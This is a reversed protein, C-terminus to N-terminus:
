QSDEVKLTAAPLSATKLTTSIKERVSPDLDKLHAAFEPNKLVSDLPMPQSVDGMPQQLEFSKMAGDAAPKRLTVALVQRNGQRQPQFRFQVTRLTQRDDSIRNMQRLVSRQVPEPLSKLNAAIEASTGSLSETVGDPTEGALRVEVQFHRGDRTQVGVSYAPLPVDAPATGAPKGRGAVPDGDSREITGNPSGSHRHILRSVTREAPQVDLLMAKAGRVVELKVPKDSPQSTVHEKLLDPSTLPKADAASLVDFPQVGAKAAPSNPLVRKVLLGRGPALVGKLQVALAQPVPETVVGLYREKKISTTEAAEEGAAACAALCILGSFALFKRWCQKM